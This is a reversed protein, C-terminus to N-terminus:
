KVPLHPRRSRGHTPDSSEAADAIWKVLKKGIRTRAERDVIALDQNRPDEDAWEILQLARRLEGPTTLNPIAKALAEKRFQLEEPGPSILIPLSLRVQEVPDSSQPEAAAGRGGLFSALAILGAM